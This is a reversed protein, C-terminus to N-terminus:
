VIGRVAWARAILEISGDSRVPLLAQLRSALRQRQENSLAKVYGPAPGQGGLFPSWYDDFDKFITSVDIARLAVDKLGVQQFLAELAAPQCLPFRPGEDLAKAPPDLAVAADWFYRLMEMKDAYDWVYLAVIGGPRTTRAMATLAVQPTPIFNMALGSVVVDFYGTETSLTRADGIQFQLRADQHTQQAFAIFAASADVAVVEQPTTSLIASSLVGTGCGVDLWRQHQAIDLWELFKYAVPRSWRGMYFEYPNGSEWPDAQM